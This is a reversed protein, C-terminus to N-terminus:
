LSKKKLIVNAVTFFKSLEAILFEQIKEERAINSLIFYHTLASNVLFDVLLIQWCVSDIGTTEKTKLKEFCTVPPNKLLLDVSQCPPQQIKRKLGM